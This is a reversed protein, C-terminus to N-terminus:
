TENDADEKKDEIAAKPKGYSILSIRVRSGPSFIGMFPSKEVVNSFVVAELWEKNKYQFRAWGDVTVEVATASEEPVYRVGNIFVERLGVTDNM